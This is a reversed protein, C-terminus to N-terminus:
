RQSYNVNMLSIDRLVLSFCSIQCPFLKYIYFIFQLHLMVKPMEGGGGGERQCDNRAQAGSQEVDPDRHTRFDCLAHKGCSLDGGLHLLGIAVSVSRDFGPRRLGRALTCYNVDCQGSRQHNGDSRWRSETGFRHSEGPLGLLHSFQHGCRHHATWSGSGRQGEDRLRAGGPRVHPDLPRHQQLAQSQRQAPHSRPAVPRGGPLQLRLEHPVHGLLAARLAFREAQHGYRPREEHLHSDEHPADLLGLQPRLACAHALPLAALHFDADLADSHKAKGASSINNKMCKLHEIEAHIVSVKEGVNLSKEIFEKEEPSISKFESPSNGGFFYWLVSWFVGAFGAVYFVSPWGLFSSALFGSASLMIVTGFQAGSYCYTSLKGRESVPAWKSLLTHTSPFIFGQCLGQFVRSACVLKWGGYSAGLPTLINLVSCIAMAFILMIKAGYTQALKGAPVQTVIYGWFFSSLIVSQTKEDWDYEEFNPNTSNRDVMAVIAVSLNVRMAYAITLCLFLLFTQLHRVGFLGSEFRRNKVM